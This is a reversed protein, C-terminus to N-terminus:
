TRDAITAARTRWLNRMGGSTMRACRAEVKAMAV